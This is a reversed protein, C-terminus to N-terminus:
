FTRFGESKENYHFRSEAGCGGQHQGEPEIQEGEAM